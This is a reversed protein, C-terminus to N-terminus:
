TDSHVVYELRDDDCDLALRVVGLVLVHWLDMGPRGTAQKGGTVRQELLQFIQENIEPTQFIWQLGRLV